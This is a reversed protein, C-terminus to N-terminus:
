LKSLLIETTHKLMGAPLKLEGEADVVPSSM